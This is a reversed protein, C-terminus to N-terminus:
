ADPNLAAGPRGRGAAPRPGRPFRRLVVVIGMVALGAIVILAALRLFARDILAAARRDLDATIETLDQSRDEWAPSEILTRLDGTVAGVKAVGTSTTEVLDRVDDLSASEGSPPSARAPFLQQLEQTTRGLNVALRDGAELTARVEGLLAGLETRREDFGTVLSERQREFEQGIRAVAADSEANLRAAALNVLREGEAGFAEPLAAAVHPAAEVAALARVAEDRAAFRLGLLELNWRIMIPWRDAFYFLREGLQRTQEIEHTAPDLASLPDLLFLSFVSGSSAQRREGPPRVGALDGFRIHWVYTQEPNAALWDQILQDLEACQPPTLVLESTERAMDEFRRLAAVVEAAVAPGFMEATWPREYSHRLLSFLVLMEVVSTADCRGSAISWAAGVSSVKEMAARVAVRPDSTEQAARDWIEAVTSAFTDAASRNRNQVEIATLRGPGFTLQTRSACGAAVLLLCVLAATRVSRM